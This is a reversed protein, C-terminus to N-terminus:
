EYYNYLNNEEICENWGTNRGDEFTGEASRTAKYYVLQLALAVALVIAVIAVNEATEAKKRLESYRM